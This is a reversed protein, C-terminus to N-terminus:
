KGYKEDWKKQWDTSEFEKAWDKNKIRDIAKDAEDFQKNVKVSTIIAIVIWTIVAIGCLVPLIVKMAAWIILGLLIMM